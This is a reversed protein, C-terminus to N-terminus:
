WYFTHRVLAWALTVNIKITCVVIVVIFTSTTTWTWPSIHSLVDSRQCVVGASCRVSQFTDFDTIYTHFVISIWIVNSSLSLSVRVMFLNKNESSTLNCASLEVSMFFLRLFLLKFHICVWPVLPVGCVISAPPIKKPFTSFPFDAIYYYSPSRSTNLQCLNFSVILETIGEENSKM